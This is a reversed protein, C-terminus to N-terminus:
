IRMGSQVGLMNNPNSPAMENSVPPVIGELGGWSAYVM